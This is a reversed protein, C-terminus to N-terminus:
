TPCDWASCQHGRHDFGIVRYHPILHEALPAYPAACFGNAHAILCLPGDGGFDLAHISVGRSALDLVESKSEDAIREAIVGWMRERPTEPPVNYTERLREFTPDMKEEDHMSV